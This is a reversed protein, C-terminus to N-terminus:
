KKKRSKVWISILYIIAIVWVAITVAFVIISKKSSFDVGVFLTIINNISLLLTFLSVIKFISEQKKSYDKTKRESRITVIRNLQEVNAIYDNKMAAINFKEAIRDSLCKALYYKYNYEFLILYKGYNEILSEIIDISPKPSNDFEYTITNQLLKLSATELALIELIYVMLISVKLRSDYTKTNESPNIEFTVGAGSAFIDAFEYQAINTVADIEAEKSIIRSGIRNFYAEAFLAFKRYYPQLKKGSVLLHNPNGSVILGISKLYEDLLVEENNNLIKLESRSSQDLIFTPDFSISPFEIILTGIDKYFSLYINSELLKTNVSNGYDDEPRFNVKGIYMRQIRENILSNVELKCTSTLLELFPNSKNTDQMFEKTLKIPLFLYLDMDKYSIFEYKILTGVDGYSRVKQFNFKSFLREGEASTTVALIEGIEYGLESLSNLYSFMEKVLNFGIGNGKYQPYRAVTIVFINNVSEKTYPKMDKPEINDDYMVDSNMIKDHLEDTIPFFCINGCMRDEEDVAFIFMEENTKYRSGVSEFTGTLEQDYVIDELKLVELLRSEDYRKSHIYKM